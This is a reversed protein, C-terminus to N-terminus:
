FHLIQPRSFEGQDWTFDAEHIKRDPFIGNEKESALSLTEESPETQANNKNKNM